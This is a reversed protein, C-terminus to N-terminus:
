QCITCIHGDELEDTAANIHDEVRKFITRVDATRDSKPRAFLIKLTFILNKCQSASIYCCVKRDQDGMAKTALYAAEAAKQDVSEVDMDGAGESENGSDAPRDPLDIAQTTKNTTVRVCPRKPLEEREANNADLVRKSPKSVRGSRRSGAVMVAPAPVGAFFAHLNTSTVTKTSSSAVANGGSKVHSEASSIPAADDPDNYWTIQQADLLSGDTGIACQDSSPM